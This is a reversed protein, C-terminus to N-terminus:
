KAGGEKKTGDTKLKPKVDRSLIDSLKQASPSAAPASDTAHETVTGGVEGAPSVYLAQDQVSIDVRSLITTIMLITGFAALIIGPSGSRLTGKLSSNGGEIVTESAKLKGLIFTAGSLALVMGTAFGLFILYIRGIAGASAQHYRREIVNGELLTLAKMRFEPLAAAPNSAGELRAILPALDIEHSSEIHWQVSITEYTLAACFFLTLLALTTAMVPLLRNQWATDQTVPPDDAPVRAAAANM